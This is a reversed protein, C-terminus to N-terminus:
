TNGNQSRLRGIAPKMTKPATQQLHTILQEVDKRVSFEEPALQKTFLLTDIAKETKGWQAFATAVDISLGAKRETLPIRNLDISRAQEVAKGANGARLHFHVAHVSTNTQNFGTGRVNNDPAVHKAIATANDLLHFAASFAGTEVEAVAARLLLAGQVSHRDTSEPEQDLEAAHRQAFDSATTAHGSRMLVHTMSRASSGIVLHDGTQDAHQFSREAAITALASEGHKLLIGSLIQYVDALLFDRTEIGDQSRLSTLVRAITRQASHLRCSQYDTKARSVLSRLEHPHVARDEVDGRLDAFLLESLPIGGPRTGTAFLAGWGTAGTLLTRRNMAIGAEDDEGLYEPQPVESASKAEARGSEGSNDPHARVLPLARSLVGGTDLAQDLSRALAETCSREGKEIKGILSESVYILRALQAQSLGAASRHYRLEAGFWARPGQEPHLDKPPNAM